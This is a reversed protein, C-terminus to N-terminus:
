WCPVLIDSPYPDKGLALVSIRLHTRLAWVNSQPDRIGMILEWICCDTEVLPDVKSCAPRACPYREYCPVRQTRLVDVTNTGGLSWCGGCWLHGEMPVVAWLVLM